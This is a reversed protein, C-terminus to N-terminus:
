SAEELTGAGEYLDGDVPDVTAPEFAESRKSLLWSLASTAM